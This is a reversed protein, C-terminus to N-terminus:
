GETDWGDQLVTAYDSALVPDDFDLDLVRDFGVADTNEYPMLQMVVLTPQVDTAGRVEDFIVVKVPDDNPLGVWTLRLTDDDVNEVKLEGWRVSMGDGARGSKADSVRGTFDKIEAVVDHPTAIDLRVSKVGDSFDDVPTPVPTAPAPTAPAPTAPTPTAPAPSAPASPSPTPTGGTVPSPRLVGSAILAIVAVAVVTIATPISIKKQYRTM